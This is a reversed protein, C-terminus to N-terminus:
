RPKLHVTLICETEKNYDGPYTKFIFALYWPFRAEGSRETIENLRRVLAELKTSRYAIYRSGRKRDFRYYDRSPALNLTYEVRKKKRPNAWSPLPQRNNQTAM